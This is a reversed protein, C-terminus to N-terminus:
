LNSHIHKVSRDSYGAVDAMQATTLSNSLIMDRIAVLTGVIHSSRKPSALKALSQITFRNM